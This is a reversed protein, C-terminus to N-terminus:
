GEAWEAYGNKKKRIGLDGGTLFYLDGAGQPPPLFTYSM